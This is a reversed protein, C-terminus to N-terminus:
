WWRRNTILFKGFTSRDEKCDRGATGGEGSDGPEWQHQFDTISTVFTTGRKSEWSTRLSFTQPEMMSRRTVSKLFTLNFDPAFVSMGFLIQVSRTKRCEPLLKSIGRGSNRSITVETTILNQTLSSRLASCRM